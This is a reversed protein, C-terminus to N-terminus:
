SLGAQLLVGNTSPDRVLFGEEQEAVALGTARVRDVVKQLEAPTPLEVVFWQLGVADTPPPPAGFGAWTNYGIHHHYGGASVFGATPIGYPLTDFGLVGHYFAEAQAIGAVHLHVHGIVSEAALETRQPADRLEAILGELDLPLNGRRAIAQLPPWQERPRDAAMEIGHGDPDPLYIAESIWHDVLGDVPTQTEAIRVLVRALERRSPVLIAYHYLGTTGSVRRAGPRESLVLLDAGGAGLYATDGERRQLTLGIVRRYFDLSRELSAVTLHVAGMRTQPHIAVDAERDQM